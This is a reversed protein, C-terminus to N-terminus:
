ARDLEHLFSALAVLTAEGYRKKISDPRNELTKKLDAFLARMLEAFGYETLRWHSDLPDSTPPALHNNVLEIFWARRHAFNTFNRAVLVLVDAVLAAAESDRYIAEWDTGGGAAKHRDLIERSKNQCQQYVAPGIMKDLALSFGPMIRRSVLGLGGDDGPRPLLLHGFRKTLIRDFPHGRSTEWKRTERTETCQDFARQFVPAFRHHEEALFREATARIADADLAGGAKKAELELRTAFHGIMTAAISECCAPGAHPAKNSM